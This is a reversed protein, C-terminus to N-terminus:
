VFVMDWDERLLSTNVYKFNTEKPDSKWYFSGLHKSLYGREHCQCINTVDM